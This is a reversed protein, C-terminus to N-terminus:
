NPFNFKGNTNKWESKPLITEMVDWHEVIKGNEVRFLDYFSTAKDAFTGESIALVFNGEGLVKHTSSYVMSIGQKAMGELAKGLGSLGDAIAPNHQIYNEPGADIYNSIKDMEGKMLITSIFGKVLAKNAETKDLDTSKTPGDTQTHGSPNPPAVDLLNDWHEVILGNEFRLIDFGIKPGFFDYITHLFVYDEDQYARVINSKFGGEPAHKIVEGFGALGDAVALNHQIYKNPNIYSAGKPDGTQLSAILAVGKDKNSLEMKTQKQENTVLEEKKETKCSVLAIILTFAFAIRKM